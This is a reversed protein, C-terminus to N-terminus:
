KFTAADRQTRWIVIGALEAPQMGNQCPPAHRHLFQVDRSAPRGGRACRRLVRAAVALVQDSSSHM